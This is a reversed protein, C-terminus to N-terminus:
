AWKAELLKDYVSRLEESLLVQSALKVREFMDRAEPAKNKDPHWVKAMNRFARNIDQQTVKSKPDLKLVNYPCFKLDKVTELGSKAM